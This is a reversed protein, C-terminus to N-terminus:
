DFQINFIGTPKIYDLVNEIKAKSIISTITQISIDGVPEYKSL